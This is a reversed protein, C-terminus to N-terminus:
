KKKKMAIQIHALHHNGHWAYINVLEGLTVTSNYEPHFFTRKFDEEKMSRLLVTWRRHLNVLLTISVLIPMKSDELNAWLKENYPKITPNDETLALKCRMYANIHSDFIHHVLQRVTWAGERYTNELQDKKIGKVTQRLKGPFNEITDIM